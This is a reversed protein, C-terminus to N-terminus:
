VRPRLATEAFTTWRLARVAVDEVLIDNIVSCLQSWEDCDSTAMRRRFRQSLSQSPWTLLACELSAETRKVLLIVSVQVDPFGVRLYAHCAKGPKPEEVCYGQARLREAIGTLFPVAAPDRFPRKRAGGNSELDHFHFHFQSKVSSDRISFRKGFV